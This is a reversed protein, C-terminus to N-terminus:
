IDVIACTTVKRRTPYIQVVRFTREVGDRSGLLLEDPYTAGTIAALTWSTDWMDSDFIAWKKSAVHDAPWDPFLLLHRDGCLWSKDGHMHSAHPPPMFNRRSARISNTPRRRSMIIFAGLKYVVRLIYRSVYTYIIRVKAVEAPLLIRRSSERRGEM